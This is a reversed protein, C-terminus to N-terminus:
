RNLKLYRRLHRHSEKWLDVGYEARMHREGHDHYERHHQRCLPVATWDDGKSGMVGSDLHHPDSPTEMCVACPQDRIYNLFDEDRVTSPMIPFRRTM